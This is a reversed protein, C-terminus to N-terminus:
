EPESCTCDALCESGPPCDGVDCEAGCYQKSQACTGRIWDGYSCKYDTCNGTRYYYMNEECKELDSCDQDSICWSTGIGLRAPTEKRINGAYYAGVIVLFIIILFVTM